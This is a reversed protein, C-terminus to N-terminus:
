LGEPCGVVPNRPEWFGVLSGQTARGRLGMPGLDSLTDCRWSRRGRAEALGARRGCAGLPGPQLLRGRSERSWRGRSCASM